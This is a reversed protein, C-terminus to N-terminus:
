SRKFVENLGWKILKAIWIPLIIFILILAGIEGLAYIIRWLSVNVQFIESLIQTLLGLKDETGPVDVVQLM